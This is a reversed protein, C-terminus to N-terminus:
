FQGMLALGRGSPLPALALKAGPARTHLWPVAIGVGVGVLAGALVDTPFHQGALVREAGVSATVIGTVVWPWVQEGYRQRVTFSAASLMAATSSVHGAYFSLYGSGGHVYAPEGAYTRPRPRQLGFNAVQQLLTSVLVTETLVTLDEAFARNAGLAFLDVLPPLVLAVGVTIDSALGAAQSRNGVSGRDLFGLEDTSCPCRKRVQHEILYARLLGASAGVAIVPLDLALRVRYVELPPVEHLPPPRLDEAAAALLLTALPLLALM